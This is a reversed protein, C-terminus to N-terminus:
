NRWTNCRRNYIYCMVPYKSISRRIAKMLRIVYNFEDENESPILNAIELEIKKLQEKSIKIRKNEIYLAIDDPMPPITTGMTTQPIDPM